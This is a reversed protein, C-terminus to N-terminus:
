QRPLHIRNGLYDLVVGDPTIARLTPGAELRDGERYRRMDILVFRRSPDTAYAHINIRLSEVVSRQAAPLRELGPLSQKAPRAAPRYPRASPKTTSPAPSTPAKPSAAKTAPASRAPISDARRPADATASSGGASRPLPSPPADTTAPHPALPASAPEIPRAPPTMPESAPTAASGATAMETGTVTPGAATVERAPGAPEGSPQSLLELYAFVGLAGVGIGGIGLAANRWWRRAPTALRPPDQVSTLRPVEGLRRERESKKLAELIYSM